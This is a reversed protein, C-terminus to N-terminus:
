SDLKAQAERLREYADSLKENIDSIRRKEEDIWDEIQSRREDSWTNSLRELLTDLHNRRHSLAEELRSIGSRQREIYAQQNARWRDRKEQREAYAAKRQRKYEEFLRSRDDKWSTWDADLRGQAEKLKAFAASKDAGLMEAKHAGLYDWADKIVRARRELQEKWKDSEGFILDLSKDLLFSVGGTAVFLIADGFASDPGAAEALHELKALHKGSDKTRAARSKHHEDQQEKIAAVITQFDTWLEGQQSRSEFETEKFAAGVAKIEAWAGKWDPRQGTLSSATKNLERIRKGLEAATM